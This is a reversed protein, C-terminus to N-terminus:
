FMQIGYGIVNAIFNKMTVFNEKKMSLSSDIVIVIDKKFDTSCGRCCPMEKTWKGNIGCTAEINEAPILEFGNNCEFNCSSGVSPYTNSCHVKGHNLQQLPECYSSAFALKLNSVCYLLGVYVSRTFMM